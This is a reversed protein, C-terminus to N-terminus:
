DISHHAKNNYLITKTTVSSTVIPLWKIDILHLYTPKRSKDNRKYSLSNQKHMNNCKYYIPSTELSKGAKDLQFRLIVKSDPVARDTGHVVVTM